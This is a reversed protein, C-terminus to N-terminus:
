GSTPIHFTDSLIQKAKEGHGGPTIVYMSTGACGSALVIEDEAKLATFAGQAIGFRDQFHPGHLFVIDINSEVQVHASSDENLWEDLQQYLAHHKDKEYAFLFELINTDITQQSVFDFKLASEQMELIRCGWKEAHKQLFSLRLLCLGSKQTIGYVQVKEEWYVAITEM